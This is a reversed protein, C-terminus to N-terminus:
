HGWEGSTNFPADHFNEPDLRRYHAANYFAREICLRKRRKPRTQEQGDAPNVAGLRPYTNPLM